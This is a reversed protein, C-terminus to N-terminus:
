EEAKKLIEHATQKCLARWEQMKDFEEKRGVPDLLYNNIVAQMRDSPYEAAVLDAIMEDNNWRGVKISVSYYSYKFEENKGLEEIGFNVTRSPTTDRTWLPPRENSYNKNM